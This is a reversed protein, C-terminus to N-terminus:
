RPAPRDGPDPAPDQRLPLDEAGQLLEAVQVPGLSTAERHTARPGKVRLVPSAALFADIVADDFASRLAAYASRRTSAARGLQEMCLLVRTNHLAQGLALHGSVPEVHGVTLGAYLDKTSEARDGARLFTTRWEALWNSV